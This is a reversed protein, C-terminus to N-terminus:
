EAEILVIVHDDQVKLAFQKPDYQHVTKCGECLIEVHDDLAIAKGKTSSQVNQAVFQNDVGCAPCATPRPRGGPKRIILRL